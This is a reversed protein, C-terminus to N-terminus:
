ELRKKHKGWLKEKLQYERVWFQQIQINNTYSLKRQLQLQPLSQAFLLMTYRVLIFSIQLLGKLDPVSLVAISVWSFHELFQVVIYSYECLPYIWFKAFINLFLGEMKLLWTNLEQHDMTHLAPSCAVM